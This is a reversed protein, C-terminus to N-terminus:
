QVLSGVDTLRGDVALTPTGSVGRGFAQETLEAVWTDYSGDQICATVEPTGAGASAALELLRETAFQGVTEQPDQAAYVSEHFAVWTQQDSNAYVCASANAARPSDETLFAVPHVVLRYEGGLAGQRLREGAAAELQACFPCVYDEFLEVLPGESGLVLGAVEETGAPGGPVPVPSAPDLRTPRTSSGDSPTATAAAAAEAADGGGPRPLLWGLVLGALLGAVLAGAVLVGVPVTVGGTRAPASGEPFAGPPLGQAQTPEPGGAAGAPSHAEAPAAAADRGQSAASQETV